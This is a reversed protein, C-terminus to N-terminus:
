RRRSRAPSAEPGRAAGEGVRRWGSESKGPPGNAEIRRREPNDSSDPVPMTGWSRADRRQSEVTIRVAAFRVKAVRKGSAGDSRDSVRGSNEVGQRSGTM